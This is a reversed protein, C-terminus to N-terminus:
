QVREGKERLEELRASYAEATEFSHMLNSGYVGSKCERAARQSMPGMAVYYVGLQPNYREKIWYSTPKKM